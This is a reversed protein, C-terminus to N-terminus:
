SFLRRLLCASFYAAGCILIVSGLIQTGGFGFILKRMTKIRNFSLEIGILFMLLLIGLESLAPFDSQDTITILEIFPISGAFQALGYPGMLIGALLFGVVPSIKLRNLGPVVIGATGLVLIIEKYTAINVPAAM